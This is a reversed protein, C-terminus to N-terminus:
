CEEQERLHPTLLFLDNNLLHAIFNTIVNSSAANIRFVALMYETATLAACFSCEAWELGALNWYTQGM